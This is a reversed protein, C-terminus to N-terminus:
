FVEMLAMIADETAKVRAEIETETTPRLEPFEVIVGDILKHWGGNVSPPVEGEFLVYGDYEYNICDTIIGDNRVQLYRM